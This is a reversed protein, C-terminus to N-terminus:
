ACARHDRRTSRWPHEATPKGNIVLKPRPAQAPGPEPQSVPIPTVRTIEDPLAVLPAAAGAARRGTTRWATWIAAWAATWHGNHYRCRLALLPNVNARAWHMGSGKLRAEVVLKNASEVCGSGIPYGLQQFRAYDLQARRPELYGLVQALTERATTDATPLARQVDRLATLVLDPDGSLLERTQETLWTAARVSETPFHAQAADALYGLAHPADLVRVADHRHLDVFGQCWASGDVVAVVTGATETGRAHTEVTALRGFTDADTVRAFYSLEVTHAGDRGDRDRRRTVTGLALTKVEVWSGDVLSVMAGDVSLQQVAPGAPAAPLTRELDAVATTDLAVAVAGATETLRRATEASLHVGTFRALVDVAQSFPLLTGLLVCQEVLRPAWGVSGLALQEDLPSFGRDM